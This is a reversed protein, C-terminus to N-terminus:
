EDEVREPEIDKEFVKGRVCLETLHNNQMHLKKNMTEMQKWKNTEMEMQAIRSNKEVIETQIHGISNKMMVNEDRVDSIDETEKKNDTTAM